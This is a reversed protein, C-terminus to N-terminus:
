YQRTSEVVRVRGQVMAVPREERSHTVVACKVRSKHMTRKRPISAWPIFELKRRVLRSASKSLESDPQCKYRLAPGLVAKGLVAPTSDPLLSAHPFNWFTRSGCPGTCKTFCLSEVQM